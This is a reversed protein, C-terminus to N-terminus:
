AKVKIFRTRRTHFSEMGAAFDHAELFLIAFQPSRPVYTCAVFSATYATKNCYLFSLEKGRKSRANRLKEELDDVLM